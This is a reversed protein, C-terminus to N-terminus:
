VGHLWSNQLVSCIVGMTLQRDFVMCGVIKFCVAYLM